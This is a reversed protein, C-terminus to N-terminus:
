LQILLLLVYDNIKFLMFDVFHELVSTNNIYWIFFLGRFM